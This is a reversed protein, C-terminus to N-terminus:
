AAEQSTPLLKQVRPTVRVDLVDHARMRRLTRPAFQTVNVEAM